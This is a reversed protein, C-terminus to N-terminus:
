LQRSGPIRSQPEHLEKGSLGGAPDRHELGKGTGERRHLEHGRAPDTFVIELVVQFQGLDNAGAAAPHNWGAQDLLAPKVFDLGNGLTGHCFQQVQLQSMDADIRGIFPFRMLNRLEELRHETEFGPLIGRRNERVGIHLCQFRGIQSFFSFRPTANLWSLM